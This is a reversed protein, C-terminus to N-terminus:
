YHVLLNAMLILGINWFFISYTVVFSIVPRVDWLADSFSIVFVALWLWSISLYGFRNDLVFFPLGSFSWLEFDHNM